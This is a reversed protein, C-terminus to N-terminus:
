LNERFFRRANKYFIKEVVRAPIGENVFGEALLPLDQAGTIELEGGIGDFDSGLALADEGALNLIYKAHRAMQAVSGVCHKRNPTNDLFAPCYNLGILCGKEGMARLLEDPLNRLHPCCARANSHSAAFPRTAIALLDRIGADSLHAVDVIMHLREMEAVFERGVGTLGPAGPDKVPWTDENYDPTINPSGLGNQHNWTLTMMRVGLRYFDRLIALDDRCVAGEEITLMAGIRGDEGLKDIDAASKVWVLDDPYAALLRHFLDAERLASVLPDPSEELGVFCAFCQLLYDGARMKALDLMGGDKAFAEVAPEGATDERGLLRYLTDCHLDWVKM